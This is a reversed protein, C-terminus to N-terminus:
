NEEKVVGESLVQRTASAIEPDTAQAQKVIVDLEESYIQNINYVFQELFETEDNVSCDVDTDSRSLFDAVINDKGKCYRIEYNICELEMIWRSFKGRPDLQRRLWQLSNHDSFIIVRGAAELYKRWKRTAAVVAFTELETASYNRQVRDLKSSFFAIPRRRGLFDEQSLVGGVAEKSADVELFFDKEWQPFALVPYTVQANCLDHFAKRQEM